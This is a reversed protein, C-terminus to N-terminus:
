DYWKGQHLIIFCLTYKYLPPPEGPAYLMIYITRQSGTLNNDLIFQVPEEWDDPIIPEINYVFFFLLIEVARCKIQFKSFIQSIRNQVNKKQM